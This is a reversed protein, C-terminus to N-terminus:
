AYSALPCFHSDHIIVFLEMHDLVEHISPRVSLDAAWARRILQELSHPLKLGSLVPRQHLVVVRQRHEAHNSGVFPEELTLLHAMLISWSFVDCRGNYLCPTRFLEPAMFAPSGVFSMQFVQEYHPITSARTRDHYYYLGKLDRKSMTPDYPQARPLERCSGFDFLKVVSHGQIGVNSTKLDRYIIRKDHLFSM